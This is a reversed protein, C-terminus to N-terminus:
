RAHGAHPDFNEPLYASPDFGLDIIEEEEIYEISSLDFHKEYPNFGEPLYDKTEFGLDEDEEEVYNISDVTVEGESYPDFGEPLYAATDFGLEATNDDEIYIISNLDFYTKHPDFGEPLYDATDFGLNVESEEEIYAIEDLSLEKPQGVNFEALQFPADKEIEAGEELATFQNAITRTMEATTHLVPVTSKQPAAETTSSLLACGFFVLLKNM